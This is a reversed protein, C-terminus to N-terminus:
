KRKEQEYTVILYANSALFVATGGLQYFRHTLTGGWSSNLAEISGESLTDGLQNLDGYFAGMVNFNWMYAISVLVSYVSYLGITSILIYLNLREAAFHTASIMALSIATYWQALLWMRDIHIAIQELIEAESM